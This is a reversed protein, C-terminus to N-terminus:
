TRGLDQSASHPLFCTSVAILIVIAVYIGIRTAESTREWWPEYYYPEVDTYRKELQIVGM